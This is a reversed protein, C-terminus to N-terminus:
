QIRGIKFARAQVGSAIARGLEVMGICAYVERGIM